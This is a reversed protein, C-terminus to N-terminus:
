PVNVWSPPSEAGNIVLRFPVYGATVGTPLLLELHTADIVAYEGANLSGATGPALREAGLFVDIDKDEIDAHQFIYGAVQVLGSSDPTMIEHDIVPTIIFPTENSTQTFIKVGGGPVTRTTRTRVKATYIGPLVPRGDVTQQVTAYIRGGTASVAWGLDATAADDWKSSKVILRTDDSSLNIGTFEVPEGIPVEAPSLLIDQSTTTGPITVTL